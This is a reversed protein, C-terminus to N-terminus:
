AFPNQAFRPDEEDVLPDPSVECYCASMVAFGRAIITCVPFVTAGNLNQLCGRTRASAAHNSIGYLNRVWGRQVPIDDDPVLEHNGRYNLFSIVPVPRKAARPIWMIWTVCPGTRDAKFWMRYQRRVAHGDIANKEDVLETVLKEPAPPEAGYMERAFIDLIERRREAWEAATSVKRGDSFVLPDELTYQPIKDKDYNADRVFVERDHVFVTRAFADSLSSVACMACAIVELFASHRKMKMQHMIGWSLM